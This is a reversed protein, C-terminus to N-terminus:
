LLTDRQALSHPSQTSSQLFVLRHRGIVRKRKQNIGHMCAITIIVVVHSRLMYDTQLIVHM